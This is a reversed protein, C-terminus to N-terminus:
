LLQIVLFFCIRSNFILPILPAPPRSYLMGIVRLSISPSDIYEGDLPISVIYLGLDAKTVNPFSLYMNTDIGANITLVQFTVNKM